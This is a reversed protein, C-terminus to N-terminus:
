RNFRESDDCYEKLMAKKLEANLSELRALHQVTINESVLETALGELSEGSFLTFQGYRNSAIQTVIPLFGVDSL